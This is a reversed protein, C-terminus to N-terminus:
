IRIQDPLLKLWSQLALAKIFLCTRHKLKINLNEECKLNCQLACDSSKYPLGYSASAATQTGLCGGSHYESYCYNGRHEAYCRVVRRTTIRTVFLVMTTLATAASDAPHPPRVEVHATFATKDNVMLDGLDAASM